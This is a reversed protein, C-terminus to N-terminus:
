KLIWTRPNSWTKPVMAHAGILASLEAPLTRQMSSIATALNKTSATGIIVGSVQPLTQVYATAAQELTWDHDNLNKSLTELYAKIPQGNNLHAEIKTLNPILGQLFVSRAVIRKAPQLSLNAVYSSDCLNLPTQIVTYLDDELSYQFEEHSYISTGVAETMGEDLLAQLGLRIYKDSIISMENQHLYVTKFKKTKTANLSNQVSQLIIKPSNSENPTLSDIKTSIAFHRTVEQHDGILTEARGYRPSTDLERIGHEQAYKLVLSTEQHDDPSSVGYSALGFKATGLILDKSVPTM